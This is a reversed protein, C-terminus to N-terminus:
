TIPSRHLRVKHNQWRRCFEQTREAIEVDPNVIFFTRCSYANARVALAPMDLARLWHDVEADHGGKFRSNHHYIVACRGDSVARAESLPIQKGFTRSRRRWELDDVLGNDPDVFVVDCGSLRELSSAFWAQRVKSREATLLGTPVADSVFYGDGSLAAELAGIKRSNLAANALIDFLAPDLHRWKSPHSLYSIHRGDLNHNEDPYIYWIAGLRRGITISRLLSLKVYDGIDAVYREQM